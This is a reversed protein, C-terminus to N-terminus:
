VVALYKMKMIPQNPRYTSNALKGHSIQAVMKIMAMEMVNTNMEVMITNVGVVQAAVVVAHTLVVENEITTEMMM